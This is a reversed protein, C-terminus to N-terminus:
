PAVKPPHIRRGAAQLTSPQARQFWLPRSRDHARRSTTIRAEVTVKTRDDPVRHIGLHTEQTSSPLPDEYLTPPDLKLQEKATPTPNAVM